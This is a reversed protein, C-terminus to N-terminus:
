KNNELFTGLYEIFKESIDLPLDHGAESFCVLESAYFLAMNRSINPDVLRDKEGLVLVIKNRELPNLIPARFCYAAWIQRFFNLKKMQPFKLLQSKQLLVEKDKNSRHSLTLNLIYAEKFHTGMLMVMPLKIATAISFRQYFRACNRSSTNILIVKLCHNLSGAYMQLWELTIMGGMSLAIVIFDTQPILNKKLEDQLFTAYESIKIFSNEEWREGNGPFDIAIVKKVVPWRNLILQDFGYWHESHRALGRLLVIQM